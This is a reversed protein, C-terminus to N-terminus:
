RSRSNSPLVSERQCYFFGPAQEGAAWEIFVLTATTFTLCLYTSSVVDHSVGSYVSEWSAIQRLDKESGPIARSSEEKLPLVTGQLAKGYNERRFIQRCRMRYLHWMLPKQLLVGLTIKWAWTLRRSAIAVFDGKTETLQQIKHFCLPSQSLIWHWTGGM